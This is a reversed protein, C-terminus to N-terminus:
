FVSLIYQVSVAFRCSSVDYIYVSLLVGQRRFNTGFRKTM